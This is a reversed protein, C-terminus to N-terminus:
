LAHPKVAEGPIALKSDIGPGRECPPPAPSELFNLSSLISASALFVASRMIGYPSYTKVLSALSPRTAAAVTFQTVWADKAGGSTATPTLASEPAWSIM